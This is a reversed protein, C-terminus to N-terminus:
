RTLWGTQEPRGVGFLGIVQSAVANVAHGRGRDCFDAQHPRGGDGCGM